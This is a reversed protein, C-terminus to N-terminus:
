ALHRLKDPNLQTWFRRILGDPGFEVTLVLDARGDIRVLVGPNGNVRVIELEADSPLRKTINVLVRAVRWPGVIPRRGAHRNPGGDDLQVVDPSLLAMVGEIDGTLLAGSMKALMEREHAEDARRLEVRGDDLRRRARSAVQRCAASSRGVAEGVEDFSYGFVDHLLFVAREEPGLEDMLVLFAFTLSDSLESVREPESDTTDAMLPGEIIPEPLYPGVYTERRRQASRLRDISLRTVMSVLYAETSRISSGDVAHWRIWADQVADEADAVSGTMRYAIGFLRPRMAEFDDIASPNGRAPRASGGATQPDDTADSM